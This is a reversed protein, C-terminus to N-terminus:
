IISLLSRAYQQGREFSQATTNEPILAEDIKLIPM